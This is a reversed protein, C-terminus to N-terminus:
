NHAQRRARNTAHYTLPSELVTLFNNSFIHYHTIIIKSNHAYPNNRWYKQLSVMFCILVNFSFVNFSVILFPPQPSHWVDQWDAQLVDHM